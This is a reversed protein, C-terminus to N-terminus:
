DEPYVWLDALVPTTVSGLYHMNQNYRRVTERIGHAEIYAMADDFPALGDDAVWEAVIEPDDDERFVMVQERVEEWEAASLSGHELFSNIIAEHTDAAENLRHAAQAFEREEETWELETAMSELESNTVGGRGQRWAMDRAYADTFSQSFETAFVPQRPREQLEAQMKQILAATDASKDSIKGGWPPSEMGEGLPANTVTLRQGDIFHVVLDTWIGAQEHEYVVGYIGDTEHAFANLRVGLSQPELQFAGAPVFGASELARSEREMKGADNWVPSILRILEITTPQNQLTLASAMEEFGDTLKTAFRKLFLPLVFRFAVVLLAILVLIGLFIGGLIRLLLEM